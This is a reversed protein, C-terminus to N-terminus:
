VPGGSEGYGLIAEEEVKTLAVSAGEPLGPWIESELFRLWREHRDGAPQLMAVRNRRELLAQRIAETKSTGTLRALENALREVEQNKINLPVTSTYRFYVM